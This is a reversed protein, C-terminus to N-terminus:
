NKLEKGFVDERLIRDLETYDPKKVPSDVIWKNLDELKEAIFSDLASDHPGMGLEQGSIKEEFLKNIASYVGSDLKLGNAVDMFKVPPTSDKSKIWDLCLLPRLVYLYKKRLVEPKDKIYIKFNGEAMHLYHYASARNSYHNAVYKRMSEAAIGKELYVIPSFLWEMLPPNSKALLDMAKFIDWGGFDLDKEIPVDDADIVDRKKKVSIYDALPRKFIFRCDWDSDKSAFGWARSGSEVAYIVTVNFRKEIEKLKELIAEKM